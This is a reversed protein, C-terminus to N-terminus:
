IPSTKNVSALVNRFDEDSVINALDALTQTNDAAVTKIARLRELLRDQMHQDWFGPYKKEIEAIFAMMKDETLTTIFDKIEPTLPEKALELNKWAYQNKIKGANLPNKRLFANANDIVELATTEQEGSKIVAIGWNEEHRDLNGILYDYIAM